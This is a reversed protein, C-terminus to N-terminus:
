IIEALVPLAHMTPEHCCPCDLGTADPEVDEDALQGCIECAAASLGEALTERIMSELREPTDCGACCLADTRKCRLYYVLRKAADPDLRNDHWSKLVVAPPKIGFVAARRYAAEVSERLRPGVTRKARPGVAVGLLSQHLKRCARNHALRADFSEFVSM